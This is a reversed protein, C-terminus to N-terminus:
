TEDNKKFRAMIERTPGLIGLQHVPDIQIDDTLIRRVRRFAMIADARFATLVGMRLMVDYELMADKGEM